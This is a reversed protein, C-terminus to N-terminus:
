EGLFSRFKSHMRCGLKKAANGYRRADEFKKTYLFHILGLNYYAECIYPNRELALQYQVIAKFIKKDREYANGLNVYLSAREPIVKMVLKFMEQAKVHHGQLKYANALNSLYVAIVEKKTLDKLSVGDNFNKLYFRQYYSDDYHDGASTTEINVGQGGDRYRVFFHGPVMVGRFPLDLREALALYLLSLSLCYGKKEDLVRTLLLEDVTSEFLRSRDVRFKQNEYIYENLVGIINQPGDVGQLRGSLEQAMRALQQDFKKIRVEQDLLDQQAKQSIMLVTENFNIGGDPQSLIREILELTLQHNDDVEQDAAQAPDSWLAMVCLSFVFVNRLVSRKM